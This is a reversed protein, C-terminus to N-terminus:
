ITGLLITYNIFTGVINERALKVVIYGDNDDCVNKANKHTYCTM